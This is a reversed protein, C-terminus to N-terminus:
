VGFVHVFRFRDRLQTQFFQTRLQHMKDYLLKLLEVQVETRPFGDVLVGIKTDSKLLARLILEFVITDAEARNSPGIYCLSVFWKVM